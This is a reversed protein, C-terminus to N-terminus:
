SLVGRAGYKRNMVRMIQMRDKDSMSGNFVYDDMKGAFSRVEGGGDASQTGLTFEDPNLKQFQYPNLPDAAMTMGKIPKVSADLVTTRSSTESTPMIERGDSGFTPKGRSISETPAPALLPRDTKGGAGEAQKSIEQASKGLPTNLGGDARWNNKISDKAFLGGVRSDKLSVSGGSGGISRYNTKAQADTGIARYPSAVGEQQDTAPIADERMRRTSMDAPFRQRSM